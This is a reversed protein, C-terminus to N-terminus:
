NSEFNLFKPEELLEYEKINNILEKLVLYYETKEKIKFQEMFPNFEKIKESEDVLDHITKIIIDSHEEVNIVYDCEM